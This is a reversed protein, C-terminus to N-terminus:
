DGPDVFIITLERDFLAPDGPTPLPDSKYVANKISLRYTTSGGKCVGFTVGLIIGGPGQIVHVECDPMKGSEPPRRWNREIRQKIALRYADRLSNLRRQTEEDELKAKLAAEQRKREQEAQRRNEAEQKKKEEELRKQEAIKAQKEQELRMEEAIRAQKEQELKELREQKKKAEALQKKKQEEAKRKVEAEQQKKLEANKKAEALKRATEKKKKEAVAKRQREEALKIKKAEARKKELRAKEAQTQKKKEMEKKLRAEQEEQKGRELAELQRQDIIEAKVTKAVQGQKQLKPDAVFNFNLFFIGLFVVHLIVSFLLAKPHKLLESQM